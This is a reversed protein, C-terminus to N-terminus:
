RAGGDAPGTECLCRAATVERMLRPACARQCAGMVGSDSTLYNCGGAAAIAVVVLLGVAWGLLERWALRTLPTVPKRLFGLTAVLHVFVAGLGEDLSDNGTVVLM